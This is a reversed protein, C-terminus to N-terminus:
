DRWDKLQIIEIWKTTNILCDIKEKLQEETPLLTGSRIRLIKYGCSRIVANRAYDKKKDRHWYWGDYEIDIKCDGIEVMCDLALEKVPYNLICNGYMKKLIVSLQLQQSSTACTQNEYYSQRMKEKINENYVPNPVGYKKLCTQAFREKYEETQAYSEKGYRELCTQKAKNTSDSLQAVNNVGYRKLVTSKTKISYCNKCVYGFDESYQSSYKAYTIEKINHCIDCEVKVRKQSYKSLDEAKVYFYNEKIQYGKDIYLQRCKKSMGCISIPIIQNPVLIKIM